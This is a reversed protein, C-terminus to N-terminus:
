DHYIRGMRESYSNAIYNCEPCNSSWYEENWDFHSEYEDQDAEFICGCRLCENMKSLDYHLGDCFRIQEPDVRAVRNQFEVIGFISSLQGAPHSGITLGAEIPKAFQEWTHFYGLEGGVKCLRVESAAVEMKM